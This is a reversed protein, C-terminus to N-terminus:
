VGPPIPLTRIRLDTDTVVVVAGVDLDDSVADLNALLLLAVERARRASSRRILIISPKDAGSRALLTGFDTDASVLVRHQDRAYQLVTQDSAAQLDTDRM